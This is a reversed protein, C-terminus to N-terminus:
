DFVKDMYLIMFLIKKLFFFAKELLPLVIWRKKKRQIIAKLVCRSRIPLNLHILFISYLTM